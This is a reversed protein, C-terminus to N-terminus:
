LGTEPEWFRMGAVARRVSHGRTTSQEKVTQPTLQCVYGFLM